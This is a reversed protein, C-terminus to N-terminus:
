RESVGEKQGGRGGERGGYIAKGEGPGEGGWWVVRLETGRRRRKGATKNLKVKRQEVRTCLGKEM